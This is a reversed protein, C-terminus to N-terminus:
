KKKPKKHTDQLLNAPIPQGGYTTKKSDGVKARVHNEINVASVEYMPIGNSTTRYNSKGQDSDYGHGLLEHALGVIPDRKDGRVNTKADPDYMTTTGTPKGAKDDATSAPSNGNNDGSGPMEIFHLNESAELVDIRRSVEKDGLQDLVYIDSFVKSAYGNDDKSLNSGDRKYFTGGHYISEVTKGESIYRIIITDGLPDSFRIPNNNMAAYLSYDDTSKPDIQWFRGIQPDLNRYFADYMNLDFDSNHEIGNYKFRNELKGAAKSSIGAIVLGFPYYHTEEMLAGQIHTVQLNDFFVDVNTAENSVYVYLYGNKSISQGNVV